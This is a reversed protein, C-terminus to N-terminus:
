MPGKSPDLARCTSRLSPAAGPRGSIPCPSSSTYSSRVVAGVAADARPLSHTRCPRQPRDAMDSRRLTARSALPTSRKRTSRSVFIRTFYRLAMSSPSKASSAPPHRHARSGACSRWSGRVRDPGPQARNAVHCRRGPLSPVMAWPPEWDLRSWDLRSWDLAAGTSTGGTLVGAAFVGTRAASPATRRLGPHGSESEWTLHGVAFLVSAAETPESGAGAAGSGADRATWERTAAMPDCVRDSPM